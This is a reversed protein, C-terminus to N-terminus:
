IEEGYSSMTLIDEGIEAGPKYEIQIQWNNTDGHMYITIIANQRKRYLHVFLSWRLDVYLQHRILDNIIKERIPNSISQYSNFLVDPQEGEIKVKVAWCDSGIYYELKKILEHWNVTDKSELPSKQTKLPKLFPLGLEDFQIIESESM